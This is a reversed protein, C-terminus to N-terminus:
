GTTPTAANRTRPLAGVDRTGKSRSVPPMSPSEYSTKKLRSTLQDNLKRLYAETITQAHRHITDRGPVTQLGLDHRLEPNARLFSEMDRYTLKLHIRLLNVLMMGATTHGPRGKGREGPEAPEPKPPGVSSVAIKAAKLFNELEHKRRKHYDKWDVGRM